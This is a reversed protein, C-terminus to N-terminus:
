TAEGNQNEVVKSLGRELTGCFYGELVYGSGTVLRSFIGSPEGHRSSFTGSLYTATAASMALEVKRGFAQPGRSVWLIAIGPRQTDELGRLSQM